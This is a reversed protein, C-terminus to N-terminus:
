QVLLRENYNNVTCDPSQELHDHVHKLFNIKHSPEYFTPHKIVEEVNMRKDPEHRILQKIMDIMTTRSENSYNLEDSKRLKLFQPSGKQRIRTEIECGLEGIPNTGKTVAYYFMVAYSFMDSSKKWYPKNDKKSLGSYTENARYNQTGVEISAQLTSQDSSLEKSVGFDALKAVTNGLERILLVNSPKLDRHIIDYVNHLHRLGLTTQKLLNLINSEFCSGGHEFYSQAPQTFANTHPTIDKNKIYHDLNGDCLGMFLIIYDPGNFFVRVYSVIHSHSKRGFEQLINLERKWNEAEDKWVKKGAYFSNEKKDYCKYVTSRKCTYIKQQLAIIRTNQDFEEYALSM